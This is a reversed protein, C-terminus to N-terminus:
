TFKEINLYAQLYEIITLGERLPFQPNKSAWSSSKTRLLKISDYRFDGHLRMGQLCTDFLCDGDAVTDSLQKLQATHKTFNAIPNHLNFNDGGTGLFNKNNSRQNKRM